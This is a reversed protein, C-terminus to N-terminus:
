QACRARGSVTGPASGGIVTCAYGRWGSGGASRRAGLTRHGSRGETIGIVVLASVLPGCPFPWAWWSVVFALGFFALLRHQRTRTVISSM